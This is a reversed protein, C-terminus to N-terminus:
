RSLRATLSLLRDEVLAHEEKIVLCVRAKEGALEGGAADAFAPARNFRFAGHSAHARRRRLKARGFRKSGAM